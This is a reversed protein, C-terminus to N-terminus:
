EHFGCVRHRFIAAVPHCFSILVEGAGTLVTADTLIYSKATIFTVCRGFTIQEKNKGHKGGPFTM